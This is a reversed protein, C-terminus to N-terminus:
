HTQPSRASYYHATYDIDKRADFSSDCKDIFESIRAKLKAAAEKQTNGNSYIDLEPCCAIYINDDGRYIEIDVYMKM